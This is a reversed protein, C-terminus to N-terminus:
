LRALGVSRAAVSECNAQRPVTIPCDFVSAFAQVYATKLSHLCPTRGTIRAISTQRLGPEGCSTILDFLALDTDVNLSSGHSAVGHECRLGLSAIKRGDVYLGPRGPIREAQLGFPELVRLLVEELGNVYARLDRGPIHLVPYALLQGPAHITTRGGRESRVIDLGRRAADDPDLLDSLPAHAGVTVVPHHELLLLVGPIRGQLVAHRLHTQLRQVQLYPAVGLDYSALPEPRPLTTGASSTM